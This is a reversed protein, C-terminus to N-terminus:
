VRVLLSIASLDLPVLPIGFSILFYHL